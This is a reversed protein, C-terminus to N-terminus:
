RCDLYASHIWVGSRGNVVDGMIWNGDQSREILQRGANVQGLVPYQTGPGGRFNVGNETVTCIMGQQDAARAPAAEPTAHALPGAALTLGGVLLAATLMRKKM